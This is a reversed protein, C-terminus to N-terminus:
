DNLITHEIKCQPCIGTWHTIEGEARHPTVDMLEVKFGCHDCDVPKMQVRGGDTLESM